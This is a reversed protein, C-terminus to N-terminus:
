ISEGYNVKRIDGDEFVTAYGQGVVKISEETVHLGNRETLAILTSGSKACFELHEDKQNDEYHCQVSYNSVLNFGSTDALGVDNTDSDEGISATDINNGMIIAGASGGYVPKGTNIYKLLPKYFDTERFDHLLSYTNGGGIYIGAFVDLEEFAKNSIDTWMEYNTFGLNKFTSGFWEKCGDFDGGKWAIPIYLLKGNNVMQELFLKDLPESDKEDGGGSLILNKM